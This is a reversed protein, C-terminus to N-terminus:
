LEYPAKTLHLALANRGVQNGAEAYGTETIERFFTLV